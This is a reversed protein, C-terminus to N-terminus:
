NAIFSVKNMNMDHEVAQQAQAYENLLRDYASLKDDIQESINFDVVLADVDKEYQSANEMVM